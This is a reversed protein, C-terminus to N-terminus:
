DRQAVPHLNGNQDTQCSAQQDTTNLFLGLCRGFQAHGRDNPHFSEQLSHGARATDALGQWDVTLRTFWESHDNGGGACAEHKTGAHSLDLYRANVRRAATRIGDALQEVGTDRVWSLDATRLPCGALNQLNAPLDPGVPAAYSQAVLTYSSDLYGAERMVKRIDRLAKEVKPVMTNVRGLWTKALQAACDDRHGFWAQVCTNLVDAFHPDDNAGVAVVVAQVRYHGALQGLRRAQSGETNQVANGLGVNEAKAGSCALNITTIDGGLGTEHVAAKTSRHCWDGNEGNTGAEYSGAGEGSMTSDGLAVVARPADPGPGIPAPFPHDSVIALVALVPVLLLITLSRRPLAPM